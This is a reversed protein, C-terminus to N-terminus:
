RYVQLRQTAGKQGCDRQTFRAVREDPGDLTLCKGSHRVQLRFGTKGASVLKWHQNRQGTCSWQVVPAGAKKASGSVEVFFNGRATRLQFCGGDTWQVQFGQNSSKPRCPWANVQQGMKDGGTKSICKGSEGASLLFDGTLGLKGAAAQGKDAAGVPQSFSGALGLFVAATIIRRM